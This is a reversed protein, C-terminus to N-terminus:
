GTAIYARMAEAEMEAEAIRYKVVDGISVLGAVAEAELVPIHRIRRVTMESMLYDITDSDRCTIVKETMTQSVPSKLADAGHKALMRVIDRESIIGAIANDADLVVVCGIKNETLLKVIDLLSADTTTTIVDRGKEKLIAAVNM